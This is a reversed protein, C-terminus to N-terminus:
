QDMDQVMHIWGAGECGMEKLGTSINSKWRRRSGRLPKKWEPNGDLIKYANGMEAM